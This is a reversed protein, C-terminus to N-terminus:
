RWVNKELCREIEKMTGETWRKVEKNAPVDTYPLYTAGLVTYARALINLLTKKYKRKRICKRVPSPNNPTERLMIWISYMSTGPRGKKQTSTMHRFKIAYEELTELHAELEKTLNRCSRSM